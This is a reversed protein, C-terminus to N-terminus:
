FEPVSLERKYKAYHRYIVEPSNGVLRAVDKVDLKHELALTIFTHRTQYPKRYEIGLGELVPKWVNKRFSRTDLYGGCYGPFILPEPDYHEPKLSQLLNKLKENCPFRRREQTKLGDRVSKGNKTEIIAQEFSISRFDNSVHKWQLAIAESPRCGTLFLFEIYTKYHSHKFASHKKCFTNNAIADIIIDREMVTFPYIDEDETSQQSKPPKIENAMGIFPNEAILGSQMAWKCCANLRVLFRKCSEIPFTKLAYDRIESAKSLDRTPLKYLYKTFHGYTFLMTNESCQPRKYEVFKEWLEALSPNVPTSIPTVTSVTSLTTQPKYKALTEDFNGSILDLEIQNVRMQALSRTTPTDDFGLSLYHRKGGYSFVLQLRGNSNKVRVAGKSAKHKWSESYM